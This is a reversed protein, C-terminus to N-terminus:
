DQPSTPLLRDFEGRVLDYCDCAAAELGRRDTVAMRGREYRILGARQLM